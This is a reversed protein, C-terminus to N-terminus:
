KPVTVNVTGAASNGSADTCQVQITYSRAVKGSHEARLSLTLDGTIVWDGVISQNSGVGIIKSKPAPDVADTAVVTLTVPVMKGNAPKLVSPSATISTITPRTTDPVTVPFSLQFVTGYNAAGGLRTVGYLTGDAARLLNGSPSRGNSGAFLFVINYALTTPHVRFVTGYGQGGLVTTGYLYGDAAETVGGLPTRADNLGGAFKHLTTFVGTAPNLKYVTGYGGGMQTTGYVNGDSGQM